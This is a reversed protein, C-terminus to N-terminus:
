AHADSRIIYISEHFGTEEDIADLITKIMMTVTLKYTYIYGVGVVASYTM